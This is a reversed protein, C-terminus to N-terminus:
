QTPHAHKTHLGALIPLCVGQGVLIWFTLAACLGLCWLILGTGRLCVLGCKSYHSCSVWPVLISLGSPAQLLFVNLFLDPLGGAIRM